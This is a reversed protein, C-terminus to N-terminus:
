MKSVHNYACHLECQQSLAICPWLPLMLTFLVKVSSSSLLVSVPVRSIRTRMSPELSFPLTLSKFCSEPLSGLRCGDCRM